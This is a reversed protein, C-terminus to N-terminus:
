IKSRIKGIAVDESTAAKMYIERKIKEM